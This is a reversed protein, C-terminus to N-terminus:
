AAADAGGETTLVPEPEYRVGCFPCYKAMMTSPKGRRMEPKGSDKRYIPVCIRTVLDNGRLLIAPRIEQDPGILRNIDDICDCM